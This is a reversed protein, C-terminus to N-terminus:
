QAAYVAVARAAEFVSDLQGSIILVALAAAVVLALGAGNEELWREIEKRM